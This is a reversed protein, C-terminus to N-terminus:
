MMQVLLMYVITGGAISLLMQRRWIHLLVAAGAVWYCWDLVTVWLYFWGRDVEPPVDASCTISFTEDCLGFILLMSVTIYELSGGFITMAMCMPYLFSFGKTRMLLGYAFGLFLFGALITLTHPFLRGFRASSRAARCRPYKQRHNAQIHLRM